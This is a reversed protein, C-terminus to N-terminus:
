EIERASPPTFESTDREVIRAKRGAVALPKAPGSKWGPVPVTPKSALRELYADASKHSPDNPAVYRVSIMSAVGNEDRPGLVSLGRDGNQASWGPPVSYGFSADIMDGKEAACLPLSVLLALAANRM